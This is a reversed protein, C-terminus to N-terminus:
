MYCEEWIKQNNFIENQPQILLTKIPIQYWLGIRNFSSYKPEIQILKEEYSIICFCSLFFIYPQDRPSPLSNAQEFGGSVIVLLLM